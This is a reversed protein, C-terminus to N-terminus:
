SIMESLGDKIKDYAYKTTIKIGLDDVYENVWNDLTTQYTEYGIRKNKDSEFGDVFQYMKNLAKSIPESLENAESSDILKLLNIARQFYKQKLIGNLKQHFIAMLHLQM